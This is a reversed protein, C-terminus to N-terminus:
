PNIQNSKISQIESEKHKLTWFSIRFTYVLAVTSLASLNWTASEDVSILTSEALAEIPAQKSWTEREREGLSEGLSNLIDLGRTHEWKTDEKTTSDARFYRCIPCIDVSNLKLFFTRLKVAGTITPRTSGRNAIPFCPALFLIGNVISCWFARTISIHPFFYRVPSLFICEPVSCPALSIGARTERPSWQIDPPTVLTPIISPVANLCRLPM